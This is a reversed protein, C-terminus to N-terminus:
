NSFNLFDDASVWKTKILTFKSGEKFSWVDRFFYVWVVMKVLLLGSTPVTNIKQFWFPCLCTKKESCFKTWIPHYPQRDRKNCNGRIKKPGVNQTIQYISVNEKIEGWIRQILEMRVSNLAVFEERTWELICRSRNVFFKRPKEGHVQFYGLLVGYSM